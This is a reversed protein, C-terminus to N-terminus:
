PWAFDPPLPLCSAVARARLSDLQQKYRVDGALNQLEHPDVEYSYLEQEGTAYQVYLWRPDRYGCYAPRDPASDRPYRKTAELPFGERRDPGLLDLGETTKRVGVAHAITVALDVNLALRWDVSNPAVHGDWRAIMPISTSWKYPLNKRSFLHHEGMLLGNDSLFIFLTNSMRGTDELAGTIRGVAEDVSMLAEQARALKSDIRSQRVRPYQRIWPPKDGVNETVSPPRYSPLRGAWDGRHRPAPTYPRHPGFPAFYLFLPQEAPTSRIFRVAGRRLVDTSYDRPLSGHTRGDTLSYNYYGVRDTFTLLYDWGPPVYGAAAQATFGGNLYKGVLGTRYGANHLALAITRREMGQDHFTRWGGHPAQNSYVGTSHAYLGTLISARSPCCNSTPVMANRFLVGKERIMRSLAPM